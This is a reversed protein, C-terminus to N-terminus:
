LKECLSAHAIARVQPPATVVLLSDLLKSRAAEDTTELLLPVDLVVLWEGDRAAEDLFCARDAAVLPHVIKEVDKLDAEGARLKASLKARDVGCHIGEVGPILMCLPKVAAGDPSYLKHVTADADHVRFGAKKLWSSATSKGMGISGTLGVVVPRSAASALLSVAPQMSAHLEISSSEQTDIKHAANPSMVVSSARPVLM